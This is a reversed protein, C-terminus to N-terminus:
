IPIRPSWCSDGVFEASQFAIGITSGIFTVAYIWWVSLMGLMALLPISAIMVVNILDVAIMLRKRNVHDVWAGIVLGFLLYPLFAAATAFTINIALPHIQLDPAALCFKYVFQGFELNDTGGM